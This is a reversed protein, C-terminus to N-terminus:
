WTWDSHDYSAQKSRPRFAQPTPGLPHILGVHVGIMFNSEGISDIAETDPNGMLRLSQALAHLYFPQGETLQASGIKVFSKFPSGKSRGLALEM